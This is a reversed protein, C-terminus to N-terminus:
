VEGNPGRSVSCLRVSDALVDIADDDFYNRPQRPNPVIKDVALTSFGHAGEASASPGSTLDTEPLLASLGRGLGRPKPAQTM